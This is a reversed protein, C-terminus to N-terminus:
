LPMRELMAAAACHAWSPNSCQSIRAQSRSVLESMGAREGRGCGEDVDGRIRRQGRGVSLEEVVGQGGVGDEVSRAGVLAGEVVDGVGVGLREAAGAVEATGGGWGEAHAGAACVIGEVEVVEANGM